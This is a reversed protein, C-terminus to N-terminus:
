LTASLPAPTATPFLALTGRLADCGPVAVRCRVLVRPVASDAAAAAAQLAAGLAVGAGEFCALVAAHSSSPAAPTSADMAGLAALVSFAQATTLELSVEQRPPEAAAQVAAGLGGLEAPTPPEAESATGAAPALKDERALSSGTVQADLAAGPATPPQQAADAAPTAGAGAAVEAADVEEEEDDDEGEDDDDGEGGEAAAGGAAPSTGADVLSVFPRRRAGGVAVHAEYFAVLDAKTLGRLAAIEHSARRFDLSAAVVEGWLTDTAERLNKASEAKQSIVAAVNDRFREESLARLSDGFEALFAEWRKVLEAAPVKNSQPPLPLGSSCPSAPYTMPPALRGAKAPSAQVIFRIGAVAGETESPGANVLYGLTQLLPPLCAPVCTPRRVLMVQLPACLLEGGGGAQKTRLSDFFPESIVHGLLSVLASQACLPGSTVPGVLCLALLAANADAPNRAPQQLTWEWSIALDGAFPAASAAAAHSPHHLPHTLGAVVASGVSALSSLAEAVIGKHGASSAAPVRSGLPLAVTRARCRLSQPVPASVAAIPDVLAAAIATAEAPSANGCVLVRVFADRLLPGAIFARLEAATVSPIAAIKEDNHWKPTTLAVSAAYM